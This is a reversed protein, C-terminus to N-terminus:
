KLLTKSEQSGRTSKELHVRKRQATIKIIKPQEVVHKTMRKVERESSKAENEQPNKRHKVEVTYVVPGTREVQEIVRQIM